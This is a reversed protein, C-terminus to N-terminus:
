RGTKGFEYVGTKGSQFAGAKGATPKGAGTKGAEHVGAKEVAPRGAKGAKGVEFGDTANICTEGAKGDLRKLESPTRRQGDAVTGSSGHFGTEGATVCEDTISTQQIPAKTKPAPSISAYANAGFGGALLAAGTMVAAITMKRM